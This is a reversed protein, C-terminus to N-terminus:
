SQALESQSVSASPRPNTQNEQSHAQEMLNQEKIKAYKKQLKKMKKEMDAFREQEIQEKRSLQSNIKEMQRYIAQILGITSRQTASLNSKM